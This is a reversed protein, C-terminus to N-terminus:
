LPPRSLSIAGYGGKGPWANPKFRPPAIGPSCDTVSTALPLRKLIHRLYHRPCGATKIAPDTSRKRKLSASSFVIFTHPPQWVGKKKHARCPASVRLHFDEVCGALPLTLWLCPHRPHSRIRLFGSAFRQGSSCSASVLRRM